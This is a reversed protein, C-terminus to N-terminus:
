LHVQVGEEEKMLETGELSKKREDGVKAEKKSKRGRRSKAVNEGGKGQKKGNSKEEVTNAPKVEAPQNVSAQNSAEHELGMHKRLDYRLDFEM